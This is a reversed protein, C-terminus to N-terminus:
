TTPQNIKIIADPKDGNEKKAWELLKGEKYLIAFKCSNAEDTDLYSSPNRAYDDIQDQKPLTWLFQIDGILHRYKFVSQQPHPTPCSIRSITPYAFGQGIRKVQWLVVIYFNRNLYRNLNRDQDIVRWIEQMVDGQMARTYERIDDEQPFLKAHHEFVAQGYTKKDEM